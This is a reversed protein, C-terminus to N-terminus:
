PFGSSDGGVAISSVPAAPAREVYRPLMLFAACAVVLGSASITLSATYNGTADRLAGVWLPALGSALIFAGYLWGYIRGFQGLGFYRAVLFGMLDLEAGMAFGLAIAMVPAAAAGNVILSLFGGAAILCMAVAIWPAFLRDLLAGVVLRSAIVALGIESAIGAAKVPSIGGDTLMPVFHPLLGAFSLAMLAFAAAMTWFVRGHMWADAQGVQDKAVAVAVPAVQANPSMAMSVRGPIFILIALVGALPVVSLAFFGARWGHTAIVSALVPPVVAAAIGIGTMTVGLALGRSRDFNAGIIQTVPIPGSAAGCFAVMTQILLYSSISHVLAGLSAFGASLLLLGAIAPARAGFRDVAWGVLPNAVALALTVLLVGFGFQTRTLGFDSTLGAVFQGNTYLLLASIGTACGFVAGALVRGARRTEETM